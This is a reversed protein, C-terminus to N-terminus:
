SLLDFLERPSLQRSTADEHLEIRLQGAREDLALTLQAARQTLEDLTRAAADLEALLSAPPADPITYLASFTM